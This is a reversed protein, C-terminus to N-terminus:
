NHLLWNVIDKFARKDQILFLHGGEYFELKSDTIQSHMAEMNEVPAIGDYKGGLLFVPIAISSLSEYTNHEKRAILQKLLNKSDPKHAM